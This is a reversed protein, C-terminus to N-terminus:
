DCIESSSVLVWKTSILKLRFSKGCTGDSLYNVRISGKGHTISGDWAFGKAMLSEALEKSRPILKPKETGGTAAPEEVFVKSSLKKLVFQINSESTQACLLANILPWAKSANSGNSPNIEVVSKLKTLPKPLCTNPYVNGNVDLTKEPANTESGWSNSAFLATLALFITILLHKMLDDEFQMQM